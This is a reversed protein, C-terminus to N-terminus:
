VLPYAHPDLLHGKPKQGSLREIHGDFKFPRTTPAM